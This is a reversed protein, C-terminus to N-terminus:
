IIEWGKSQITFSHGSSCKLEQYEISGDIQELDDCDCEPCVGIYDESAANQIITTMGYLGFMDINKDYPLDLDYDFYSEKLQEHIDLGYKTQMFDLMKVFEEEKLYIMDWGNWVEGDNYGELYLEDIDAFSWIVKKLNGNGQKHMMVGKIKIPKDDDSYQSGGLISEVLFHLKSM